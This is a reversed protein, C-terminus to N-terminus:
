PLNAVVHGYDKKVPLNIMSLTLYCASWAMELMWGVEPLRHHRTATTLSQSWQDPVMSYQSM